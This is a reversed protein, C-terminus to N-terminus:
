LAVRIGVNFTRGDLPAWVETIPTGGLRPTPRILPDFRTQRVNTLNIANVFISVAGFRIESLANLELYPESVNRYPDDELTQRGTYGLELGIRGRQKNELIAGLEGSNRPVLPTDQRLGSLGAETAQIHSYSGIVQLPGAVYHILLEAGPARWAGPENVLELKEASASQVTLADRIESDFVSV